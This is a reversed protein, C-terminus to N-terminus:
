IAVPGVDSRGVDSRRAVVFDVCSLVADDRGVAVAGVVSRGAAVIDVRPAVADDRAM